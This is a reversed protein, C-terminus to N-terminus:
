SVVGAISRAADGEHEPRIGLPGIAEADFFYTNNGTNIIKIRVYGMFPKGQAFIYFEDVWRGESDKNRAEFEAKELYDMGYGNKLLQKGIYPIRLSPASNNYDPRHSRISINDDFSYTNHDTVEVFDVRFMDGANSYKIRFNPLVTQMVGAKMEGFNRRYTDEVAVPKEDGKPIQKFRFDQVTLLNNIFSADFLSFETLVALNSDTFDNSSLGKGSEKPQYVSLDPKNLVYSDAAANTEGMDSQVNLTGGAVPKGLIYDSASSDTQAWNARVNVQAGNEIAALKTSNAGIAAKDTDTYDNASLVKGSVQDVKTAVKAVEGVAAADYDNGSLGKGAVKDVKNDIKAVEDAAANNYDNESLGKGTVKDVKSAVKAVETAAAATYDNESLGKGAVKDVKAVLAATNAAIDIVNQKSTIVAGKFELVEVTNTPHDSFILTGQGDAWNVEQQSHITDNAFSSAPGPVISIEGTARDVFTVTAGKISSLTADVNSGVLGPVIYNGAANPPGEVIIDKIFAM